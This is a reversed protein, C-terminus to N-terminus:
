HFVSAEKPAGQAQSLHTGPGRSQAVLTRGPGTVVSSGGWGTLVWVSRLSRRQDDGLVSMGLKATWGVGFLTAPSGRGCPQFFPFSPRDPPM